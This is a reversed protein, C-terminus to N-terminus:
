AVYEEVEMGRNKVWLQRKLTCKFCTLLMKLSSASLSWCVSEDHQKHIQDFCLLQLGASSEGTLSVMLLKVKLKRSQIELKQLEIRHRLILM